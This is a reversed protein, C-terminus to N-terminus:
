KKLIANFDAKMDALAQNIRKKIDILKQLTEPETVLDDNVEEDDFFKKIEEFSKQRLDNYGFKNSLTLIELANESNIQDSLKDVAYNKLKEIKLRECAYFLEIFNVGESQPLENSYMFDLIVRFVKTSVDVLNLCEAYVNTKLIDAFTPSNAALVFKHAKFEEFETKITFDKLEENDMVSQFAESKLKLDEKETEVEALKRELAEIRKKNENAQEALQKVLAENVKINENEQEQLEGNNQQLNKTTEDKLSAKKLLKLIDSNVADFALDKVNEGWTPYKERLETKIEDLTANNKKKADVSSFCKNICINGNLNVHKLKTAKDFINPEILEIKSDWAVFVELDKLDELLDGPLYAIQNQQLWLFTVKAFEKLCDRSIHALRSSAIQFYKLNPFIKTLGRPFKSISCDKFNIGLVDGNSKGDSHDGILIQTTQSDISQDVVSCTYVKESYTWNSNQYRCTIKQEM